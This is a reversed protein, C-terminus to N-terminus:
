AAGGPAGDTSALVAGEVAVYVDQGDVTLAEPPGGARDLHRREEGRLHRRVRLM